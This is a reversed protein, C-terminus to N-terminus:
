LHPESGTNRHSHRLSAAVAGIQGRAQSSGYAAPTARFLLFCLINLNPSGPFWVLKDILSYIQFVAFFLALGVTTKRQNRSQSRHAPKSRGRSDSAGLGSVLARQGQASPGLYLSLCPEQVEPKATPVQPLCPSSSQGQLRAQDGMLEM